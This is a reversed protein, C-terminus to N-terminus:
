YILVAHLYTDVACLKLLVIAEVRGMGWGGGDEEGWARISVWSHGYGLKFLARLAAGFLQGSVRVFVGVCVCACV